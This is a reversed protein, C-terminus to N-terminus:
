KVLVAILNQTFIGGRNGTEIMKWFRLQFVKCGWLFYRISSVFGIPAPGLPKCLSSSFGCNLAVQNVSRTTYAMEHTYDGFFITTYYLGEGNPVQMLFKGGSVLSKNILMLIEFVENKTFHEIVDRAIILDYGVSSEQLFTKLDCCHLNKIGMANGEAIQEESLDIGKTNTYGLSQLWYVFNGDGCGIDLINADKNAPLYESFHHQWLRFNGAIKQLTNVGYLNRNHKTYYNEYIIKKYDTM